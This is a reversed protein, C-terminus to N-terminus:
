ELTIQQTANVWFGEGPNIDGLVSFGKSEAYDGQTEEGPLYVAWAGSEWKWLSAINAEDGSILSTVTESQVSKLGVLNWGSTLSLSGTIPTGSISLTESGVSNVWFGEGPSITSLVSFGKATAYAQTDQGPLYVAWAGSEWKWVSKFKTEDSFTESATIAIRSSLLNWGQILEIDIQTVVAASTGTVLAFPYDGDLIDTSSIEFQWIGSEAGPITITFPPTSIQYEGYLTEDPRFVRFLLENGSWNVVAKLDKKSDINFSYVKSQSQPITDYYKSAVEFNEPLEDVTDEVFSDGFAYLYGDCSAVYVTGAPGIVASSGIADSLKYQWRVTGDPNLAYFMKSNSGIYITGAADIIPSANIKAQTNVTSYPWQSVGESDIAYVQYDQSGLYIIGNSGIAPVSNSIDGIHAYWKQSGDSSNLAYLGSTGLSLYGGVFIIGQDSLSPATSFPGSDTQWIISGDQPALAYVIKCGSCSGLKAVTYITGDTGLVPPKVWKGNSLM